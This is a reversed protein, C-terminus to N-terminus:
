SKVKKYMFYEILIIVSFLSIILLYGFRQFLTPKPNPKIKLLQDLTNLERRQLRKSEQGNSDIISSIGTNTSRILPLQFELARWKAMDLHQEQEASNGYWSDNTLNIMFSPNQNNEQYFKNLYNRVFRPNLVEYCILNIFGTQDKLFFSPKRSGESFFSVGRLIDGAWRNLPGFPLEEGFPILIHKHYDNQFVGKEDFHLVGNFQTQFDNGSTDLWGIDYGGTILEANTQSALVSFLKPALDPSDKIVEANVTKPYATEPWVILDIPYLSPRLSLRKYRQYVENISRVSGSESSLKLLNGINAQVIRINLTQDNKTNTLSPKVYTLPLIAFNLIILFTIKAFAIKFQSFTTKHAHYFTFALWYSIFSYISYGFVPALGLYEHIQIWHYGIQTPFQNPTIIEFV